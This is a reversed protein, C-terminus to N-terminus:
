LGQIFQSRQRLQRCSWYLHRLGFQAWLAVPALLACTMWTPTKPVEFSSWPASDVHDSLTMMGGATIELLFQLVGDLPLSIHSLLIRFFGLIVIIGTPLLLVVSLLPGLPSFVGFHHLGIPTAARWALLSVTCLSYARVVVHKWPSKRGLKAPVWRQQVRRSWTIIAFVVIYSLQFGAQFLEGPDLIISAVGAFLLLGTSRCRRRVLWLLSFIGLMIAARQIPARWQVLLIYALLLLLSAAAQAFPPGRFLRVCVFAFLVIIGLHMGSIALLHAVGIRRFPAATEKWADQRVGLVLGGLLAQIREDSIGHVLRKLSDKQTIGRAHNLREIVTAPPLLRINDLEDILLLGRSGTYRAYESWAAGKGTGTILTPYLWGTCRIRIGATPSYNVPFRVILRGSAPHGGSTPHFWRSLHLRGQNIGNTSSVDVLVGEMRVLRRKNNRDSSGVVHLIDTPSLSNLHYGGWGAGFFFLTIYVVGMRPVVRPVHVLRTCSFLIVLLMWTQWSEPFYEGFVVGLIFMTTPLALRPLPQTSILLHDRGSPAGQSSWYRSCSTWPRM